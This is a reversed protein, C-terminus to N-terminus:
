KALLQWPAGNCLKAKAGFPWHVACLPPMLPRHMFVDASDGCAVGNAISLWKGVMFAGVAAVVATGCTEWPVGLVAAKATGAAPEVATGPKCGAGGAAGRALGFATGVTAGDNDVAAGCATGVAAGDNDVATGCATGVETGVACGASDCVTTGVCAAGTATTAAAAPAAPAAPPAAVRLAALTM